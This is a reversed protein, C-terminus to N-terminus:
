GQLCVCVCVAALHMNYNNTIVTQQRNRKVSRPEILLKASIKKVLVSNSDFIELAGPLLKILGRSAAELSSGYKTQGEM